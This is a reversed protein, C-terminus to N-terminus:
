YREKKATVASVIVIITVTVTTTATISIMIIIIIISIIAFYQKIIFYHQMLQFFKKFVKGKRLHICFKQFKYYM